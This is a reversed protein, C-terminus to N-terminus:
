GAFAATPQGRVGTRVAFLDGARPQQALDSANLHERATPLYLVDLAPGGFACSTVQKAGPTQVITELRGDPTYRHAGGGNYLAVWICGDADVTLGDPHGVAEPVDLFRRRKSLEGNAKDFDFLEVRQYKTDVLYLLLDDPSWDLGNGLWLGEVMTRVSGDPDLRFLAAKGPSLDYALSDAWFRGARDARGDNFRLGPREAYPSALRQETGDDLLLAFGERM